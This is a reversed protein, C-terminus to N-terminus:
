NVVEIWGSLRGDGRLTVFQDSSNQACFGVEWTGAVGPVKTAAATWTVPTTTATGRPHESMSFNALPDNTNARRYCLGYNFTVSSAGGSDINLPASVVGVLRQTSSTTVTVPPAVFTVPGFPVTSGQGTINVAQAVSGPVEDIDKGDLMDANDADTANQANTAFDASFASDARGALAANLNAVRASSNVKMPAVNNAPTTANGVRLDLAAGGSKNNVVFASKAADALTSVLITPTTAANAKGLIFNGGTASWATSAAGIVLALVLTLGFVMSATLRDQGGM